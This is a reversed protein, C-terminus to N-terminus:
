PTPGAECPTGPVCYYGGLLIFMEDETTVGGVLPCADCKGDNAGAASDCQRDDGGCPEGKHPGGLCAVGRDRAFSGAIYCPGGPALAGFQPPLPSMSNRKVLEANGSGNDYIACFKFRRTAPDPDDLALPPDIRVVAPDNYVTTVLIPDGPEATCLGPNESTSRCSAAIGPGWVRYLRGRKHTHSSLQYLRTGQGLTITRCYEREQFPPVDQIFIDTADFIGRAPYTRDTEGAFFINWWQQNATAQPTLNFAHSNWVVVARAPFIGFV